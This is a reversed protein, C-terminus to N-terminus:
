RQFTGEGVYQFPPDASELMGLADDCLECDRLVLEDLDLCNELLARLVREDQFFSCHSADLRRLQTLNTFAERVGDTEDLAVHEAAQAHCLTVQRARTLCDHLDTM